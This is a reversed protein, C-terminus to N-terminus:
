PKIIENKRKMIVPFEYIFKLLMEIFIILEEADKKKMISIVHTAENGKNRIHDIWDKGNPPLYNNNSLYEIYEIFKLGERAGKSVAINMLLKRSCLVSATYSNCSTCNRAENYLDEIDKPIDNVKNGYSFGPIQNGELNFYTPRFCSHCIYIYSVIVNSQQSTPSATYGRDSAIYNGCIYSKSPLQGISHWNLKEIEM